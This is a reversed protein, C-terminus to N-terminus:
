SGLKAALGILYAKPQEESTWRAFGGNGDPTGPDFGCICALVNAITRGEDSDIKRFTLIHEALAKTSLTFIKSRGREQIETWIKEFEPGNETSTPNEKRFKRLAPGLRNLDDIRVDFTRSDDGAQTKKWADVVVPPAALLTDMYAQRGGGKGDSQLGLLQYAATLSMGQTRCTQLFDFRQELTWLRQGEDEDSAMLALSQVPTLGTYLEVPVSWNTYVDLDPTGAPIADGHLSRLMKVAVPFELERLAAHRRHGCLIRYQKGDRLLRIPKKPQAHWSSVDLEGSKLADGKRPNVANPEWIRWPIDTRIEPAPITALIAAAESMSGTNKNKAVQYAGAAIRSALYVSAVVILMSLTRTSMGSTYGM